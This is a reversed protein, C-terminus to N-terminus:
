QWAKKKVMHLPMGKVQAQYAQREELTRLFLHGLDIEPFPMIFNEPWPYHSRLWELHSISAPAKANALSYVINSGKTTVKLRKDKEIGTLAILVENETFGKSTAVSILADMTVPAHKLIYKTLRDKLSEM